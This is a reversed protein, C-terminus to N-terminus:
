DTEIDFFGYNEIQKVIEYQKFLIKWAHSPKNKRRDKEDLQIFKLKITYSGENRRM